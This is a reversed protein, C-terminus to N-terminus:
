APVQRAVVMHMPVCVAQPPVQTSVCVSAFLQPVQPVTQVIPWVQWVPVQRAIIHPVPSVRQPEVQTLVCVLALLQPEHPRAHAMPWVQLAPIHVPVDIHGIPWVEHVAPPMVTQASRWVSSRLQPMHPRAQVAVCVQVAPM